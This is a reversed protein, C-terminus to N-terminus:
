PFPGHGHVVVDDPAQEGPEAASLDLGGAVREQDREVVDLAGDAAPQRQDSRKGRNLERDTDADVAALDDHALILDQAQRHMGRGPDDVLGSGALHEHRAVRSRASPAAPSM